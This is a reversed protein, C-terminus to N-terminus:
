TTVVPEPEPSTTVVPEPELSNKQALAIVEMCVILNILDQKTKTGAIYRRGTPEGKLVSLIDRLQQGNLKDLEAARNREADDKPEYYSSCGIITKKNTKINVIPECVGTIANRVQGRPCRSLKLTRNKPIPKSKETNQSM